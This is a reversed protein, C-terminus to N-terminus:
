SPDACLCRSAEVLARFREVAVRLEGPTRGPAGLVATVEEAFSPPRIPLAAVTAVGGKENIVYRRNFAFLAQVLCAACRFLSGAVYAVDGRDVGKEGTALAFAAEELFRGVLTRRLAPPYRGVARKLRALEGGPDALVRGLHLEGLYIHSHFGHPHGWQYDTTV